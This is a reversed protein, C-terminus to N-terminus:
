VHSATSDLYRHGTPSKTIAGSPASSILAGARFIGMVLVCSVQADYEIGAPNTGFVFGNQQDQFADIIFSFSDGNDLSADRRSDAVIIGEPNDDYAVVGIYLTTDTYGIYVETQETSPAGEVPRQQWFGSLAPERWASDGLLDGDIVPADSLKVADAFPEAFGQSSLFSLAIVLVSYRLIRSIVPHVTLLLM